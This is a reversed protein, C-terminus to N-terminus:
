SEPILVFFLRNQQRNNAMNALFTPLDFSDSRNFLRIWPNSGSQPHITLKHQTHHAINLLIEL